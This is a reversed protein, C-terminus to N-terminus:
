ILYVKKAVYRKKLKEDHKKLLWSGQDHSWGPNCIGPRCKPNNNIATMEPRM